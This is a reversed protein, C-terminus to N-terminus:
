QESDQERGGAAVQFLKSEQKTRASESDSESESVPPGVRRCRSVPGEPIARMVGTMSKTFWWEAEVDTAISM